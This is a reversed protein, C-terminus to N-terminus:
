HTEVVIISYRNKIADAIFKLTLATSTLQNIELIDVISKSQNITKTADQKTITM